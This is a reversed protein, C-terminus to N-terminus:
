IRQSPVGGMFGPEPARPQPGMQPGMSRLGALCSAAEGTMQVLAFRYNGAADDEAAGGVVVSLKEGAKELAALEGEIHSRVFGLGEPRAALARLLKNLMAEYTAIEPLLDPHSRRMRARIRTMRRKARLTIRRLEPVERLPDHASYLDRGPRMLRGTWVLMLAGLIALGALGIRLIMGGLGPADGTTALAADARALAPAILAPTLLPCLAFARARTM